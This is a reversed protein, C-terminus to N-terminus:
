LEKMQDMLLRQEALQALLLRSQLLEGQFLIAHEDATLGGHGIVEALAFQQPPPLKKIMELDPKRDTRVRLKGQRYQVRSLWHYLAASLNGGALAILERAYRELAAEPQPSPDTAAQPDSSSANKRALKVGAAALRRGLLEALEAVSFDSLEVVDTFYRSIDFAYDLRRWAPQTFSMVWCCRRQSAMMIDFLTRAADAFGMTRLFLRHVGDVMILHGPLTDVYSALETSDHCPGPMNFDHALKEVLATASRIRRDTPIRVFTETSRRQRSLWHLLTTKGAGVPALLAVRPAAGHRWRRLCATLMERERERGILLAPDTLPALTFAERFAPPFAQLHERIAQETPLERLAVTRADSAPKAPDLM